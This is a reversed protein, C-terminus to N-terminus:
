EAIQTDFESRNRLYSKIIQYCECANEELGAPDLINIV